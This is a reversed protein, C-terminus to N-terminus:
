LSVARPDYSVAHTCVTISIAVSLSGVWVPNELSAFEPANASVEAPRPEGNLVMLNQYVKRRAM